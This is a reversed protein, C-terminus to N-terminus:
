MPYRIKVWMPVDISRVPACSQLSSLNMLCCCDYSFVDTWSDLRLKMEVLMTREHKGGEKGSSGFLYCARFIMNAWKVFEQMEVVVVAAVVVDAVAGFCNM